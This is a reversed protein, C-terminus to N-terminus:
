EGAKKNFFLSAIEEGLKQANQSAETQNLAPDVVPEVDELDVEEAEGKEAPKEALTKPAYM